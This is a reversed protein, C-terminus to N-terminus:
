CTLPRYCPCVCYYHYTCLVNGPPMSALQCTSLSFSLPSLARHPKSAVFALPIPPGTPTLIYALDIKWGPVGGIGEQEWCCSMASITGMRFWIMHLLHLVRLCLEVVLVLPVDSATSQAGWGERKQGLRKGGREWAGTFAAALVSPKNNNM